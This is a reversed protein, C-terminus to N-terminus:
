HYGYFTVNTGEVNIKQKGNLHEANNHNAVLYGTHQKYSTDKLQKRNNTCKNKERPTGNNHILIEIGQWKIMETSLLVDFKNEVLFDLGFIIKYRQKTNPNIYLHTEDIVRKNTIQQLRLGTINATEGTRFNGANTDWTSNNNNCKFEYKDM